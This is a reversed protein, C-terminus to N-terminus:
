YLWGDRGDFRGFPVFGGFRWAFSRVFCQQAFICLPRKVRKARKGVLFSRSFDFHSCLHSTHTRRDTESSWVSPARFSLLYQFYTLLMFAQLWCCSLLPVIISFVVIIYNGTVHHSWFLGLNPPFLNWSVPPCPSVTQSHPQLCPNGWLLANTAKIM